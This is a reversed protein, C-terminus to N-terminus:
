VLFRLVRLVVPDGDIRIRGELYATAPNADGTLVAALTAASLTITAATPRDVPALYPRPGSFDFVWTAPTFEEIILRFAGVSRLDDFRERLRQPLTTRMFTGLDFESIALSPTIVQTDARAYSLETLRADFRDKRAADISGLGKARGRGVSRPDIANSFLIKSDGEGPDHPASFVRELLTPDPDVGLWALMDAVQNPAENVLAEYHVRYCQGPRRQELALMQATAELWGDIAGELQNGAKAVFMDLVDIREKRRFETSSHVVDVGDRYLCIFRAEPFVSEILPLYLANTPSKDCWRPKRKDRAYDAMISTVIRRIEDIVLKRGLEGPAKIGVTPVLAQVLAQALPGVEVEAPCAIQPHTDVIFRLLTSGSRVWSVIFIPADVM